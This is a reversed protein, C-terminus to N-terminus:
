NDQSPMSSCAEAVKPDDWDYPRSGRRKRATPQICQQSTTRLEKKADDWTLQKAMSRGLERYGWFLFSSSNATSGATALQPFVMFGQPDNEGHIQVSSNHGYFVTLLCDAEGVNGCKMNNYTNRVQRQNWAAKILWIRSERVPKEDKYWTVTGKVVPSKWDSVNYALEGACVEDLKDLTPFDMRVSNGLARKVTCIDGMDGTVDQATDVVIIDKVGRKLLSYLGLNEGGGGDSLRPQAIAGTQTAVEVPVGWRAGPWVESLLEVTTRSVGTLGQADAFGAAARVSTGLDEIPPSDISNVYGFEEAGSGFATMEFIRTANGVADGTKGGSNANVIWLPLQKDPTSRSRDYLARLAHWTVKEPDVRLPGSATARAANSYTWKDGVKRPEPNLGWTREIGWQYLNPISSQHKFMQTIPEIM